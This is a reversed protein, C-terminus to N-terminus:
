TEPMVDDGVPEGMRGQLYIWCAVDTAHWYLDKGGPLRFPRPFQGKQVLERLRKEGLHTAHEVERRSITPKGFDYLPSV